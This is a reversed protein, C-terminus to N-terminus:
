DETEHIEDMLAKKIKRILWFDNPALDPSYPPHGTVEIRNNTQFSKVLKSRHIPANDHHLILESPELGSKDVM